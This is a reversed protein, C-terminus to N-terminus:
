AVECSSKSSSSVIRLTKVYKSPNEKLYKEIFWCSPIINIQKASSKALESLHDLAAAAIKSGIGQGRLSTPVETHYLDYTELGSSEDFSKTYDILAFTEKNADNVYLKFKSNADEHEFSSNSM